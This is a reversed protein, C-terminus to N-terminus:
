TALAPDTQLVYYGRERFRGGELCFMKLDFEERPTLGMVLEVAYAARGFVAAHFQADKASFFASTLKCEPQLPCEPCAEKGDLISPLFPHTHYFGMKVEATRGLRKRRREMQADADVFSDPSLDLSFREHSAGRAELVTHIVGFIEARPAHQRYLNGVLWAGRERNREWGIQHAQDLASHMLFLPYDEDSVPGRLEAAPLLSDLTGEVLPLPMRRLHAVVGNAAAAALAPKAFARFRIEDAAALQKAEILEAAVKAAFSEFLDMGFRREVLTDELGLRMTLAAIEGTTEDAFIPEEGVVIGSLDAPARNRRQALFLLQERAVELHSQPVERRGFTAGDMTRVIEGSYTYQEPAQM